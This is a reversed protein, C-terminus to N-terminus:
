YSQNIYFLALVLSSGDTNAVQYIVNEDMRFSYELGYLHFTTNGDYLWWKLFFNLTM